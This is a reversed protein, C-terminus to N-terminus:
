TGGGTMYEKLNRENVTKMKKRVLAVRAGDRTEGPPPRFSKNWTPLEHHHQVVLGWRPFSNEVEEGRRRGGHGNEHDHGHNRMTMIM